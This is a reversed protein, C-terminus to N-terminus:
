EAVSKSLSSVPNVLRSEYVGDDDISPVATDPYVDVSDAPALGAVVTDAVPNIVTDAVPSVFFSDVEVKEYVMPMAPESKVSVSDAAAEGVPQAPKGGCASLMLAVAVFFIPKLM